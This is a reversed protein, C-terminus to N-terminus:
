SLAPKLATPKFKVDLIRGRRARRRTYPALTDVALVCEAAKGGRGTGIVRIGQTGFAIAQILTEGTDLAILTVGRGGSSLTNVEDLTFVLLRASNSLCAIHTAHLDIRAPPLLTADADLTMFAKGAKVRSVLHKIQAIFGFGASSSLLLSHEASAAFYHMLQTGSELEIMATLPAGDGRGGPLLAVPVSYARGNNGLAILTDATRCEFAGYLADGAKFVCQAADLGHGKQTRVWGNKSVIVTLLEDVVRAEITARRAPAILTRRADGYQKADAEIERILARKLAAESGLLTELAKKTERLQAIEQELKFQELKALQRLRIELIDDAQRESLGFSEILAPKPEDSERIIKIVADLNLFVIIRGELLHIRDDIKALRFRSRRTLTQLRFASWERLIHVFPKQQPRGDTGIVVLNLAINSELSTMCLLTNIFEDADIRSSKPELVLRVPADRGSEDRVADLLAGVTQKSQQQEPTLSKRGPRLKPNTLAEIEELVKQASTNPPLETIVLQWQGRALSEIRWRARMKLSGRGGAYAAQIEDLSSILQGGGPFDPGPVRQMLEADALDPARILAIAARAVENLNHPPIETALGVAIGSAGNLLVFPLRAPLQQPEENSGDYNPMWDVTGEKLEDLLLRAIPTLRAETYRMAAARDGDRSGFNGQGDILPYRLTFDQALRVLADYASQDGHPHYKGLVDGVVRASKVPKADAALRMENMAYLIRRQVPKQGDSVNPLARSKVVSVAYDLYAREAYEGLTLYEREM